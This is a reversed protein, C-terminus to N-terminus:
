GNPIQRDKKPLISFGYKKGIRELVIIALSSGPVAQLGIIALVKTFDISQGKLFHIQEQTVPKNELLLILIKAAVYNKNAGSRFDKGLTALRQKLKSVDVKVEKM